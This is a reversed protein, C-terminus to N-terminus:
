VIDVTIDLEPPESVVREVWMEGDLQGIRQITITAKSSDIMVPLREQLVHDNNEWIYTRETMLEDNFYVRYTQPLEKWDCYLYFEIVFTKMNVVQWYIKANQYHIIGRKKAIFLLATAPFCKAVAIQVSRM